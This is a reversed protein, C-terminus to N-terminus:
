PSTYRTSDTSWSRAPSTSPVSTLSCSMSRPFGDMIYGKSNEPKAIEKTMAQVIIEPPVLKGFDIRAAIQKGLESGTRAEARLLEGASITTIQLKEALIAAQTGKGSGPPGVLIIRRYTKDAM